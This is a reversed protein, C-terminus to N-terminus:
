MIKKLEDVIKRMSEETMSDDFPIGLAIAKEELQPLTCERCVQPIGLIKEAEPSYTRCTQCIATHKM